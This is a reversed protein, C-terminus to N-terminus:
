ESTQVQLHQYCGRAVKRVLQLDICRGLFNSTAQDGHGYALKAEKFTFNPALNALATEQKNNFLLQPGTLQRYGLPDGGDDVERALYVPGIDGRIRGFGRLVLAVNDKGVASLDPEDVGLRIDSGNILASAGRSDQFWSRLIAGELPGASEKPNRSQKRRHHVFIVATGCDRALERFEKLMEISASNKEEAAPMYSALSDIIVLAPRVDRLMDLLTHGPSGFNQDCDNLSWLELNEVPPESLGLHRSIRDVLESIDALGNEFDAIVVSGKRTERGLFPLGAAICIGAQYM